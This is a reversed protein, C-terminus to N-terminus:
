DSNQTKDQDQGAKKQKKLLLLGGVASTFVFGIMLYYLPVGIKTELIMIESGMHKLLLMCVVSLFVNMGGLAIKFRRFGVSHAYFAILGFVLWISGIILSTTHIFILLFVSMFIGFWPLYPFLPVKFPRKMTPRTKRLKILAYMVLAVGLFYAFDSLYAVLQVIGTGAFAVAIIMSLAIAAVPSKHKEHLRFFAKPFYGDRSLAYVNMTAALMAVGVSTLTALMGALILAYKGLTGIHETAITVMPVNSEFVKELPITTITILTLSLYIVLASVLTILMARPLNKEPEKVFSAISCIDEFGIFMSFLLASTALLSIPGHPMFDKMQGLDIHSVTLVLFGGLILLMIAVFYGQLKEYGTLGFYILVSFLVLVTSAVVPASVPILETLVFAFGLACLAAYVINGFWIIWGSLFPSIGSLAERIFTYGGGSEPIAAVVESYCLAIITALFFTILFALLVAPGSMEAGIGTLIFIEPGLTSALGIIVCGKLGVYRVSNEM